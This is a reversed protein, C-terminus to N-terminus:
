RSRDLPARGAQLADGDGHELGHLAEMAAFALRYFAVRPKQM